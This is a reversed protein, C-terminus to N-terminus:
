KGKLLDSMVEVKAELKTKELTLTNLQEQFASVERAHKAQLEQIQTQHRATGADRMRVAAALEERVHYLQEKLSIEEKQTSQEEVVEKRAMQLYKNASASSLNIREFLEREAKSGTGMQRYVEKVIKFLEPTMYVKPKKHKAM